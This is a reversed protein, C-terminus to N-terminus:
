LQQVARNAIEAVDRVIEFSYCTILRGGLAESVFDDVFALVERPERSLNSSSTWFEQRIKAAEWEFGVYYEEPVQRGVCVAFEELDDVNEFAM